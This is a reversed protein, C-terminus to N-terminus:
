LGPPHLKEDLRGAPAVLRLGVDSPMLIAVVPADPFVAAFEEGSPDRERVHPLFGARHPEDPPRVSPAVAALSVEELLVDLPLLLRQFYRVALTPLLDAGEQRGAAHAKVMAQREM